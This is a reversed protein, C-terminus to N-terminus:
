LEGFKFLIYYSMASVGALIYLAYYRVKGNQLKAFLRASYKYFWVNLLLFGDFLKPDIVKDIFESMLLLPKIIFFEYLEDVYFKNLVVKKFLTNAQVERTEKAFLKYALLM